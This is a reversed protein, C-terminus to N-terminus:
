ERIEKYCGLCRFKNPAIKEVKYYEKTEENWCCNFKEQPSPCDEKQSHSTKYYIKHIEGCKWKRKESPKWFETDEGCGKKIETYCSLAWETYNEINFNHDINTNGKKVGWQERFDEDDYLLQNFESKLENENEELYQKQEQTIM